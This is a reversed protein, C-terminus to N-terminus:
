RPDDGSVGLRVKGKSPCEDVHALADKRAKDRARRAPGTWDCSKCYGLIFAGEEHVNDADVPELVARHKHGEADKLTLDDGSRKFFRPGRGSKAM